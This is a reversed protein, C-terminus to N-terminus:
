VEEEQRELADDFLFPDFTINALWNFSFDSNFFTICRLIRTRLLSSSYRVKMVYRQLKRQTTTDLADIELDIEDEDDGVTTSERIIQIIGTLMDPSINNIADTLEEQEEFTLPEEVLVPPPVSKSKKSKSRKQKKAM